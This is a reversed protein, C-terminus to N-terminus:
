KAAIPMGPAPPSGAVIKPRRGPHEQAGLKCCLATLTMGASGFAQKYHVDCQSMSFLSQITNIRITKRNIRLWFMKFHFLSQIVPEPLM